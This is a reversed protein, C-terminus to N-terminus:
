DTLGPHCHLAGSSTLYLQYQSAAQVLVPKQGSKPDHFVVHVDRLVRTGSRMNSFCPGYRDLFFKSEKWHRYHSLLFEVKAVVGEQMALLKQVFLPIMTTDWKIVKQYHYTKWKKRSVPPNCCATRRSTDLPDTFHWPESILSQLLHTTVSIDHFGEHPATWNLHYLWALCISSSNFSISWSHNLRIKKPIVGARCISYYRLCKQSCPRSQRWFCFGLLRTFNNPINM